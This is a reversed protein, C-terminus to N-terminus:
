LDSSLIRKLEGDLVSKMSLVFSNSSTVVSNESSLRSKLLHQRFASLAPKYNSVDKDALLQTVLVETGIKEIQHACLCRM